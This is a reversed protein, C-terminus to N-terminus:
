NIGQNGENSEEPLQGADHVLPIGFCGKQALQCLSMGSMESTSRADGSTRARERFILSKRISTSPVRVSPPTHRIELVTASPAPATPTESIFTKLALISPTKRKCV